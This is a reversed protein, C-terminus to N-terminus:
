RRQKRGYRSTRHHYRHQDVLRYCGFVRGTSPASIRVYLYSHARGTANILTYEHMEGANRMTEPVGVVQKWLVRGDEIDLNATRSPFYKDYASSYINARVRYLGLESIPFLECLNVTRKVTEGLKIQIPDLSYDPDRPSILSDSAGHTVTFGFWSTAGDQLMVDRGALNTISVTVLIPEYRLFNRRKVELNVTLQASAGSIVVFLVIFLFIARRM